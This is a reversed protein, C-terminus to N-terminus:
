GTDLTAEKYLPPKSIEDDTKNYSANEIGSKSQIVQKITVPGQFYTNNGFHVNESNSVSVTGFVPPSAAPKAFTAISNTGAIGADDSDCTEEVIELDGFEGVVSIDLNKNEDCFNVSDKSIAM